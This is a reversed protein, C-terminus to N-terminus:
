KIYRDDEKDFKKMRLDLIQTELEVIMNDRMEKARQIAAEKSTCWDKSENAYFVPPATVAPDKIEIVDYAKRDTPDNSLREANLEMIGFSLAYKTIWVKM